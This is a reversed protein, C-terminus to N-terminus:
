AAQAAVEGPLPENVWAVGKSGDPDQARLELAAYALKLAAATWVVESDLAEEARRATKEAQLDFETLEKEKEGVRRVELVQERDPVFPLRAVRGAIDSAMARSDRTVQIGANRMVKEIYAAFPHPNHPGHNPNKRRLEDNLTGEDIFGFVNEGGTMQAPGAARDDLAAVQARRAPPM